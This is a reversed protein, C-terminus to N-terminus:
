VVAAPDEGRRFAAVAAQGATAYPDRFRGDEDLFDALVEDVDKVRLARLLLKVTEEPPMKGTGDAAVIAEIMEKVPLDDLPPWDIEVTGDTDGALQVFERGTFPDRIITGQLPGRPARVAQKIVYAFLAQLAAGWLNRRGTMELQTPGDLTEAVARAGTTGPDALLITVPIGLAAAVMAALPKGSGSDITAGSKPIAELTTDPGMVATAGVTGPNTSGAAPQPQRALRQRLQQAKSGKTTTRWAFQSLAKVLTAWDSLFDAYARAWSIAAYADGIGFAWGDLKNVNVHLVPADWVVEHGDITKFRAAPRYDLAPYFATRQVAQTQGQATVQRQTWIRKYYWPDDRDDPNTIVDTIEDFPISRAQVFGTLPSTFCALFVNGDTGLARELEEQAQSGTLARQNGPDDWFAQIVANVDQAGDNGDARAQVTVGQGWVYAQRIGLGRKILPHAVALVRAIDAAKGLGDRSFETAAGAVLRSWGEDELALQLSAVSEQLIEVENRAAAVEAATAATTTTAERLGLRTLIGM